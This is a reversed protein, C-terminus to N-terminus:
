EAWSSAGIHVNSLFDEGFSQFVLPLLDTVLHIGLFITALAVTKVESPMPKLVQARVSGFMIGRRRRVISISLSPKGVDQLHLREVLLVLSSRYGTVPDKLIELSLVVGTITLILGDSHKLTHVCGNLLCIDIDNPLLAVFKSM